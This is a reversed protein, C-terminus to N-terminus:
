NLLNMQKNNQEVVIQAKYYNSYNGYELTGTFAVSIKYTVTEGAELKIEKLLYDEKIPLDKQSSTENNKSITYTLNNTSTLSTEVSTLKINYTLTDTGENSIVITKPEQLYYGNGIGQLDLYKNGNYNTTLTQYVTKEENNMIEQKTKGLSIAVTILCIITMLLTLGCIVYLILTRRKQEREEAKILITYQNELQEKFEDNKKIM